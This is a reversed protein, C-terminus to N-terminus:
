AGEKLATEFNVMVPELIYDMVTLEGTEILVQAPMGPQAHSKEEGLAAMSEPVVEVDVRFYDAGTDADTMSDASM